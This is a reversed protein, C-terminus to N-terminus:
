TVSSMIPYSSTAHSDRLPHMCKYGYSKMYISHIMGKGSCEESLNNAWQDYNLCLRWRTGERQKASKYARNISYIRGLLTYHHQIDESINITEPGSGSENRQRDTQRDTHMNTHSNINASTANLDCTWDCHFTVAPMSRFTSLRVNTLAQKQWSPPCLSM